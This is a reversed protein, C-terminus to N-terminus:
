VKKSGSVFDWKIIEISSNNYKLLLKAMEGWSESFAESNICEDRERKNSFQLMITYSNQPIRKYRNLITHNKDQAQESM